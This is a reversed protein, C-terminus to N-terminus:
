KGYVCEDYWELADANGTEAVLARLDDATATEYAYTAYYKQLMTFFETGGMKDMLTKFFSRGFTYVYIYDDWGSFAALSSGLAKGEEFETQPFFLGMSEWGYKESYYVMETFSTLGEDMWAEDVEDNGVASYWWQHGIEHAIVEETIFLGFNEDELLDAGILVLGPYEMGGYFDSFAVTLADNTYRGFRSNYLTLSKAAYGMVEDMYEEDKKPIAIRVEIGDVNETDIVYTRSLVFAFDRVGTESLSLVRRGDATADSVVDGTFAAQMGGPIDITVTYDATESYFPDGIEYYKDLNWGEDDYVAMIPYWNGFSIGTDGWAFRGFRHPAQLSYELSLEISSGYELPADLPISLVTEDEGQVDFKVAKGDAKVSDISIYGPDFIDDPYVIQDPNTFTMDVYEQKSFHNPYIHMYLESLSDESTNTYFVTQSATASHNEEDYKVQINYRPRGTNDYSPRNGSADPVPFSPMPTPSPSESYSPEPEPTYEPTTENFEPRICSALVPIIIILVALVPLISKIRKM